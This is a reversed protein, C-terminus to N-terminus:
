SATPRRSAPWPSARHAGMGLDNGREDVADLLGQDAQLHWPRELDEVDGHAAEFAALHGGDLGDVRQEDLLERQALVAADLDRQHHRPEGRDLREGAEVEGELGREVVVADHREGLQLEDVAALDYVEEARGAGALAMQREREADLGDLGAAADVEGREASRTLASALASRSPM